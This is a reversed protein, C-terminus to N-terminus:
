RSLEQARPVNWLALQTTVPTQQIFALWRQDPCVQLAVTEPSPDFPLRQVELTADTAFLGGQRSVWFVRGGAWGCALVDAALPRKRLDGGPESCDVLWQTAQDLDAVVALLRTDAHTLGLIMGGLGVRALIKAEPSRFVLQGNTMGDSHCFGGDPFIAAQTPAVYGHSRFAYTRDRALDVYHLGHRSQWFLYDGALVHGILGRGGDWICTAARHRASARFVRTSSAFSFGGADLVGIAGVKGFAHAPINSGPALIEAHSGHDMVVYTQHDEDLVAVLRGPSPTPPLEYVGHLRWEGPLDPLDPPVPSSASMPVIDPLKEPAAWGLMKLLAAATQVRQTPDKELLHELIGRLKADGIQDLPPPKALHARIVEDPSGLYPRTGTAIEFGLVGLSYLDSNFFFRDYVREPAIYAPSGTTYRGERAERIFCVSGLDGLVYRAPRVGALLVNEPKIDCHIRGSGHLFALGEALEGLCRWIDLTPLPGTAALDDALTGGDLYEYVVCGGGQPPYFTDLCRVIHPHVLGMAASAERLYARRAGPEFCKLVVNTGTEQDRARYLSTQPGQYLCDAVTYRRAAFELAVFGHWPM